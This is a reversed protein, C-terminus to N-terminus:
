HRADFADKEGTDILPTKEVTWPGGLREAYAQQVVKHGDRVSVTVLRYRGDIRAAVNPRHADMVIFPKHTYGGLLDAPNAFPLPGLFEWRGPGVDDRTRCIAQAHGPPAFFLVMRWAAEEEDWVICPDGAVSSGGAASQDRALVLGCRKWTETIEYKM